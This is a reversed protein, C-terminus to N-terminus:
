GTTSGRKVTRGTEGHRDKTIHRLMQEYAYDLMESPNEATNLAVNARAAVIDHARRFPSM